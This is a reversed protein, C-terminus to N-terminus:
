GRPRVRSWIDTCARTIAIASMKSASVAFSRGYLFPLVSVSDSCMRPPKREVTVDVRVQEVHEDAVLDIQVVRLLEHVRRLDILDVM